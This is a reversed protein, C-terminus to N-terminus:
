QIYKQPHRKKELDDFSVDLVLHRIREEIQKSAQLAQALTLLNEAICKKLMKGHFSVLAQTLTKHYTPDQM